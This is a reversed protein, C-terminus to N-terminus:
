RWLPPSPVDRWLTLVNRHCIGVYAQYTGLTDDVSRLIKWVAPAGDGDVVKFIHKSSIKAPFDVGKSFVVM